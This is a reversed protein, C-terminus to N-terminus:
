KADAGAFSVSAEAWIEIKGPAVPSPDEGAHGGEGGGASFPSQGGQSQMGRGSYWGGYYGSSTSASLVRTLKLDLADAMVKAKRKAAKTALMVAEERAELVAKMGFQVGEVRNCGAGLAADIVKAPSTLDPTRVRMTNTATYGIVKPERAEHIGDNMPSDYRATLEVTGTQLELGALKMANIAGVAAEMAKTAGAQAKTATPEAVVVGIMVDVYDPTRTVRATGTSSIVSEKSLAGDAVDPMGGSQARASMTFMAAVMAVLPTLWRASHTFM